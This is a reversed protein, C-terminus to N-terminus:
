LTGGRSTLWEMVREQMDPPATGRFKDSAFIQRLMYTFREGGHLTAARDMYELSPPACGRLSNCTKHALVINFEQGHMAPRYIRPVIHDRSIERPLMPWGCIMCRRHQPEYLPHLAMPHWPVAPQVPTM